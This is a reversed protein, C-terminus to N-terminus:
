TEILGEIEKVLIDRCIDLGLEEYIDVMAMMVWGCVNM